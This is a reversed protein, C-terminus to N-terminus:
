PENFCENPNMVDIIRVVDPLSWNEKIATENTAVMKHQKDMLERNLLGSGLYANLQGTSKHSSMLLVDEAKHGCFAMTSLGGRRLARLDAVTRFTRELKSIELRVADDTLLETVPLFVYPLGLLNARLTYKTIAQAIWSDPPMHLCKTGIVDSTKTMPLLIAISVAGVKFVHEVRLSLLDGVRLGFTFAMREIDHANHVQAASIVKASGTLPLWAPGARRTDRQAIRLVSSWHPHAQPHFKKALTAIVAVRSEVTRPSWKKQMTKMTAFPSTNWIQPLLHAQTMKHKGTIHLNCLQLEQTARHLPEHNPTLSTQLTPVQASERQPNYQHTEMPMQSNKTMDTTLSDLKETTLKGLTTTTTIKQRPLYYLADPPSGVM